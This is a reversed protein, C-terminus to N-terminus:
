VAIFRRIRLEAAVGAAVATIKVKETRRRM